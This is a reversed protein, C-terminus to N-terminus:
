FNGELNCIRGQSLVDWHLSIGNSSGWLSGFCEFGGPRRAAAVRTLKGPMKLEVLMRDDNQTTAAEEYRVYKDRM